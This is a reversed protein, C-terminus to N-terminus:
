WITPTCFKHDIIFQEAINLLEPAEEETIDTKIPTEILGLFQGSLQGYVSIYANYKGEFKPYNRERLEIGYTRGTDLKTLQLNM